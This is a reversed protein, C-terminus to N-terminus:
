GYGSEYGAEYATEWCLNVLWKVTEKITDKERFFVVKYPDEWASYKWLSPDGEVQQCGLALLYEGVETM